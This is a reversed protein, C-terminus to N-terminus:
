NMHEYAVLRSKSTHVATLEWKPSRNVVIDDCHSKYHYLIGYSEAVYHFQSTEEVFHFLRSHPQIPWCMDVPTYEKSEPNYVHVGFRSNKYTNASDLQVFLIGYKKGLSIIKRTTLSRPNQPIKTVTKLDYDICVATGPEPPAVIPTDGFCYLKSDHVICLHTSCRQTEQLTLRLMRADGDVLESIQINNSDDDRGVIIHKGIGGGGSSSPLFVSTESGSVFKCKRLVKNAYFDVVELRKGFSGIRHGFTDYVVMFPDMWFFRGSPGHRMWVQAGNELLQFSGGEPVTMLRGYAGDTGMVIPKFYSTIIGIVTIPIVTTTTLTIRIMAVWVAHPYAKDSNYNSTTPPVHPINYESLVLSYCALVQATDTDTSFAFRVQIENMALLFLACEKATTPYGQPIARCIYQILYVQNYNKNRVENSFVVDIAKNDIDWRPKNNDNGDLHIYSAGLYPEVGMGGSLTTPVHDHHIIMGIESRFLSNRSAM